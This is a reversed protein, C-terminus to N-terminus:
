KLYARTNDLMERYLAKADPLSATMLPDNAFAQFALDYDRTLAARLVTEQNFVQRSVLAQVPAPLAGAQVPKVSDATFVANTEVVAGLPVNQMQGRNPLNVNTVLAGLGALAKIQKVGDEGTEHIEFPEKGSLLRRTTELRNQLDQKRWAVTTLGFKWRKVMEPDKLYWNGPLFEVLHRDGAAGIVHYRRFLDFKVREASSFTDNM